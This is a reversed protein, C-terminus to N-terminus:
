QKMNEHLGQQVNNFTYCMGYENFTTQFGNCYHEQGTETASGYFCYPFTPSSQLKNNQMAHPPHLSMQLVKMVEPNLNWDTNMLELQRLQDVVSQRGQLDLVSM